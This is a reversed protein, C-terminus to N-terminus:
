KREKSPPCIPALLGSIHKYHDECGGLSGNGMKQLTARHTSGGLHSDYIARTVFFKRCTTCFPQAEIEGFGLTGGFEEM